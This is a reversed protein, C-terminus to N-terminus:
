LKSIITALTIKRYNNSSSINGCKNKIISEITTEILKPPLHGLSLILKFCLSLLVSLQDYACKLAETCLDDPVASQGFELKRILTQVDTYWYAILWCVKGHVEGGLVASPPNMKKTCTDPTGGFIDEFSLRFIEFNNPKFVWFRTKKLM